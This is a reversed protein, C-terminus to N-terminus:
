IKWIVKTRPPNYRRDKKRYDANYLREDRAKLYGLYVARRDKFIWYSECPKSRLESMYSRIYEREHEYLLTM